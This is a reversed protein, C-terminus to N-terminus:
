IENDTPFWSSMPTTLVLSTFHIGLSQSLERKSAALSAKRRSRRGSPHRAVGLGMGCAYSRFRRMSHHVFSVQRSHCLGNLRYVTFDCRGDYGKHGLKRTLWHPNGGSSRENPPRSRFGTWEESHRRRIVQLIRRRQNGEGQRQGLL